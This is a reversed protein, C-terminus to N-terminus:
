ELVQVLAQGQLAYAHGGNCEGGSFGAMGDLMEIELPLVFCYCFLFWIYTELAFLCNM